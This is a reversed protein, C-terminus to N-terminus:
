RGGSRYTQGSGPEQSIRDQLMQERILRGEERAALDEASMPRRRFAQKVKRLLGM